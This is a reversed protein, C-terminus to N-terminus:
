SVGVGWRRLVDFIVVTAACAVNMSNKTGHTPIEVVHEVHELVSQDVGTVENGLILAVGPSDLAPLPASAYASAGDVTELAWVVVGQGKLALVADRTSEFHRTAVAAEAGFATKALKSTSFPNPTFGCTVLECCRGCDASRFISGVNEASRVNDLVITLPHPTLGKAERAAAAADTNRLHEARRALEHRHLFAIQHAANEATQGARSGVRRWPSDV